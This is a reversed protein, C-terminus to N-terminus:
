ARDAGSLFSAIEDATQEPMVDATHVVHAALAANSPNDLMWEVVGIFAELHAAPLQEGVISRVREGLIQRSRDPDPDPLLLVVTSGALARQVRGFLAAHEPDYVSQGGGFGIVHGTPHEALVREVSATEFPKWYAFMAGLGHEDRLREAHEHDYCLDAYHQWRVDDLEIPTLGTREAVLPLLTSKGSGSPGILVVNRAHNATSQTTSTM